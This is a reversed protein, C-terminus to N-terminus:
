LIDEIIEIATEIDKKDIGHHVTADRVSAYIRILRKRYSERNYSDVIAKKNHLILDDKNSFNGPAALFPNIQCVTEMNEPNAVLKAIM